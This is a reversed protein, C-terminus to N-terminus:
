GRESHSRDDLSRLVAVGEGSRSGSRSSYWVEPVVREVEVGPGRSLGPEMVRCVSFFRFSTPVRRFEEHNIYTYTYMKNFWKKRIKGSLTRNICRQGGLVGRQILGGEIVQPVTCMHEKIEEKKM